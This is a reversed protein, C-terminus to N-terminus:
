CFHLNVTDGDIIFLKFKNSLLGKRNLDNITKTIKPMFWSGTGGCGVIIMLSIPMGQPSSLNFLSAGNKDQYLEPNLFMTNEVAKKIVNEMGRIKSVKDKVDEESSYMLSLAKFEKPIFSTSTNKM